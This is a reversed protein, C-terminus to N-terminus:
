FTDVSVQPNITVSNERVVRLDQSFVTTVDISFPQLLNPSIPKQPPLVGVVATKIEKVENLITKELTEEPIPSLNLEGSQAYNEPNTTYNFAKVKLELDGLHTQAVTSSHVLFLENQVIKGPAHGPREPEANYWSLIKIKGSAPAIVPEGDNNIRIYYKAPVALDKNKTPDFIANSFLTSPFSSASISKNLLALANSTQSVTNNIWQARSANKNSSVFLKYAGNLLLLMIVTAIIVEVLTFAALKNKKM